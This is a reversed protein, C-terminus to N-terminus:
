QPRATFTGNPQYIRIRSVRGHADCEFQLSFGKLGELEFWFADRAKLRYVPQGPLHAYLTNGKRSITLPQVGEVLYEGALQELVAPDFMAAPAQRTFVIEDVSPELPLAVRAVRGEGDTYFTCRWEIDQATDRAMFLDYHWHELELEFTHFQMELGDATARLELAGYAPHTYTGAYAELPHSPQTGEVRPPPTPETAKGKEDESGYIRAYWDIPELGLLHDLATRAVVVPLATRSCNAMVAIGLKKRPALLVFASYGDINGGHSALWLHRYTYTMWGLAYAVPGFEPQQMGPLGEVVMRARFLEDVQAESLIRQGELTGKQLLMGLWRVMDAASANISGAPGIADLKRFPIVRVQEDECACPLARNSDALMQKATLATRHMGLPELLRSRTFAEWSQGSLRAALLGAVMYMLNNYQWESRFSRSPELHRLRRYLEERSFTSGYWLMDHRPLGSNHVLLDLPRMEKTAFADKLRFDPMYEEVPKQWDLLGEDALLALGAATFAKTCSGIAFLTHADVGQTTDPGIYGFGETLLVQGDYWIGISLGPVQLRTRVSDAFRRIFDLALTHRRSLPMGQAAEARHLVMRMHFGGQSFIGEITTGDAALHGSFRANGPVQSLRFALSDGAIVLEDLPMDDIGQVPIDLTGQYSKGAPRFEIQLELRPGPTEIYGDWRGSLDPLQAFLQLSAALWLALLSSSLIFPRM